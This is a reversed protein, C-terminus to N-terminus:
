GWNFFLMMWLLYLPIELVDGIDDKRISFPQMSTKVAYKPLYKKRYEAFSKARTNKGAKVEIPLINLGKQVLFDLEAIGGSKWFYPSYGLSILETLCFNEALIGRMYASEASTDLVADAPFGSMKRLIGVDSLYIKFYGLDASGALPLMPREVRMVQYILGASLLWHLSDELDRARAGTKIHSFVFKQNDKALQAPIGKWILSLKPYESRPAYKVFDREYDSIINALVDETEEVSHTEIWCKVAAPMGGTILYWRCLEELRESYLLTDGGNKLYDHLLEDGNALMFEEFNLPYLTITQVKGVPFSISKEMQAVAVGLLSGAAAVCLTPLEEAFYKLATIARPCLQIEDLILFTKGPEITKRRLIGLELIIREPNLDADFIKGIRESHEFNFYATDSFMDEGFTKLLWTKGCQRVGQLILPLRNDRNKWDLLKKYALRKM